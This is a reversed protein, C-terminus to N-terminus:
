QGKTMLSDMKTSELTFQDMTLTYSVKEMLSVTKCNEWLYMVMVLSLLEMEKFFGM